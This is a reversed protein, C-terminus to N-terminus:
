LGLSPKSGARSPSPAYAIFGVLKAIRRGIVVRISTTAKILPPARAKLRIRTSM